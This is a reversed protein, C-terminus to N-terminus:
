TESGRMFREAVGGFSIWHGLRTPVSASARSYISASPKQTRKGTFLTASGDSKEQQIAAFGLYPRLYNVNKGPNAQLAGVAPQNIDYVRWNHLGRGGVYAVSLTSSLPLQQQVTFNWNWRVPAKLNQNLTTITLPPAVSSNM